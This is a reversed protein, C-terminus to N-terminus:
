WIIDYKVSAKGNKAVIPILLRYHADNKVIAPIGDSQIHAIYYNFNNVAYSNGPSKKILRGDALLFYLKDNPQHLTFSIERELGKGSADRHIHDKVEVNKYTYFFVPADNKLLQYGRHTFIESDVPIMEPWPDDKDNLMKVSPKGSFETIGGLPLELQQEGRARWMDAADVFGGRWVSLMNYNSLSYAYNIGGPLGVAITHTLKKGKHMMFGRQVVARKNVKIVYPDPKNEPFASSTTTLSTVPIHTAEYSLKFQQYRNNYILTFPYSGQDFRKKGYWPKFYDGSLHNSVILTDEIWLWAPGGAQLKFIYEGSDPIIMKGTYIGQEFKNYSLQSLSDPHLIRDPKLQKLTDINKYLSKYVKLQMNKLRIGQPIYTKYRIDKFAVPGHSGQIELPGLPKEDSFYAGLTPLSAEVNQQVLAGNLYVWVFCANSIKKGSSDFRPARFRVKLHQWLGPAKCANLAPAHGEYGKGNAMREYIGGCDGYHLSDKPKLWSDFLQVEYRGMFYIGSNSGKPMMFDLELDIDGHEFQTLLEAKDSDTPKSVLIGTGSTTELSHTVNRDSYVKGAVSWNKHPSSSYLFDATDNLKLDHFPITHSTAKHEEKSTKNKCGIFLISLILLYLLKHKM